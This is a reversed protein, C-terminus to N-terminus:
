SKPSPRAPKWFRTASATAKGLLLLREELLDEKHIAERAVWPHSAPMLVEFHEDYIPKTVVDTETFPLAVIIVDLEGNRLKARLTGTMGEEIYLPM